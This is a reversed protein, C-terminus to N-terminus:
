LRRPCEVSSAAGTAQDMADASWQAHLQHLWHRNAEDQESRRILMDLPTEGHVDRVFRLAPGRRALWEITEPENASLCWEHLPLRGMRDCAELSAGRQLLEDAVFPDCGRHLPTSGDPNCRRPDAGKRILLRSIAAEQWTAAISLPTPVSADEPGNPNAGALLLSQVAQLNGTQIALSLPYAGEVLNKTSWGAEVHEYSIVQDVDAGYCLLAVIAEALEDRDLRGRVLVYHLPSMGLVGKANPSAGMDLLEGILSQYTISLESCRDLFSIIFSSGKQDEFQVISEGDAVAARLLDMSAVELAKKIRPSSPVDM